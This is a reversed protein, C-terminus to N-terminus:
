HAPLNVVFCAGQGLAIRVQITGGHANVIERTIYLGLGLGGFHTLPAIREFAHVTQTSRRRSNLGGM